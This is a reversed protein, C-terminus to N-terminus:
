PWCFFLDWSSAGTYLEPFEHQFEGLLGMRCCQAGLVQLFGREAVSVFHGGNMSFWGVEGSCTM